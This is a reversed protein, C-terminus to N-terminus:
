LILYLFYWKSVGFWQIIRFSLSRDYKNCLFRLYINVLDM